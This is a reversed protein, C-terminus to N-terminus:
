RRGRGRQCGARRAVAAPGGAHGAQAREHACQPHPGERSPLAPALDLPASPTAPRRSPTPDRAPQRVAASRASFDAPARFTLSHTPHVFPSAPLPVAAAFAISRDYDDEEPLEEADAMVVDEDDAPLAVEPAEFVVPSEYDAEPELEAESQPSEPAAPTTTQRRPSGPFPLHILVEEEDEDSSEDSEDEDEDEDLDDQDDGKLSFAGSSRRSSSASNSGSLLLASIRRSTSSGASVISPTSVRRPPSPTTPLQQALSTKTPSGTPSGTPSARKAQFVALAAEAAAEM